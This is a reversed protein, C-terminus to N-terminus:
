KGFGADSASGSLVILDVLRSVVGVALRNRNHGVGACLAALPRSGFEAAAMASAFEGAGRPPYAAMGVAARDTDPHPNWLLCSIDHHATEHQWSPGAAVLRDPIAGRSAGRHALPIDERHDRIALAQDHPKRVHIPPTEQRTAFRLPAHRLSGLARFM